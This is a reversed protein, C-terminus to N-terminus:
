SGERWRALEGELRAALGPLSTHHREKCPLPVASGWGGAWVPGAARRQGTM